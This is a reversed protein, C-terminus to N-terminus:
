AQQEKRCECQTLTDDDAYRWGNSCEGCSFSGHAARAFKQRKSKPAPPVARAFQASIKDWNRLLGSPDVVAGAWFGEEDDDWIWHVVSLVADIGHAQVLKTVQAQWQGTVTPAKDKSQALQVGEAILTAIREVM